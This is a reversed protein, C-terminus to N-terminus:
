PHLRDPRRRRLRQDRPDGLIVIQVNEPQLGAAEILPRAIDRLLAETEADRLISQALAPQIGAAFSCRSCCAALARMWTLRAADHGPDADAM